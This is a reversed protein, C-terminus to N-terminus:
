ILEYYNSSKCAYGSEIKRIKKMSSLKSATNDLFNRLMQFVMCMGCGKILVNGNRMTMQHKPAVTVILSNINIIQHRKQIYVSFERMNGSRSVSMINVKFFYPKHRNRWIFRLLELETNNM